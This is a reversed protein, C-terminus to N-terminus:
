RNNLARLIITAAEARTANGQPKYTNDSYGKILGNAFATIVSNKAWSSISGSDAFAAEQDSNVLGAAKVIMAAMQERTILDNAGFSDDEYGGAIGFAAAAGIYDKAWHDTTDTFVKGSQSNLKFAKVLVTVFEARTITDNPKFSDDSYGNIAGVAVLSEIDKEAWHGTIDSLEVVEALTVTILSDKIEEDSGVTNTATMKVAYIGAISYTYSPNQQTSDTKGDNDFDWAWSTPSNKSKDSFAVTLPANGSLIDAAFDAEPKVATSEGGSGSGSSDVPAKEKSYIILEAVNQVSLGTTTPYYEGGSSYYYWYAADAAEHWDWNGFVHYGWPNTSTDAFWVLRMGDSYGTDPYFGDNYWCIVMPGEKGSYNYVNKYAFTKSLGDNAKIKLTEGSKMGGVLECLDKVNTGKLAGMDKEEVNTDERKNWRLEEETAEDDDDVFVPGQHYYHTTGNGMVKVNEMLWTYDFTEQALVTKRDSALRTITLSTTEASALSSIMLMPLLALLMVLFIDLFIRQLKNM